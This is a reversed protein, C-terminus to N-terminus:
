TSQAPEAPSVTPQRTLSVALAALSFLIALISLAKMPSCSSYCIKILNALQFFPLLKEGWFFGWRKNASTHYAPDESLAR